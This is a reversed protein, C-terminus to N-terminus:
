FLTFYFTFPVIIYLDILIYCRLSFNQAESDRLNSGSMRLIVHGHEYKLSERLHPVQYYALFQEQHLFLFKFPIITQHGQWGALCM